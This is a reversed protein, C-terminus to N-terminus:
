PKSRPNLSFVTGCGWTGCTLNGGIGTTGYLSGNTAQILGFPWGGDTDSFSHLRTLIGTTTIKFVTGCGDALGACVRVDGGYLATGYLNNNTGRILWNPFAGDKCDFGPCFNHLANLKGRPSIEFFLGDGYVGGLQTTGYLRGNAAQVLNGPLGGDNATFSYITTLVGKQTMKFVSGYLYLGLATTGYFNGDKAQILGQQPLSGDACEAESCFSHLVTLKGSLTIKFVTGYNQAGGQETTAYLNGDTAQILRAYPFYGDRCKTQKCFRYLTTLRGSPTIRFITGCLASGQTCDGGSSGYTTGYFNGDNALTLGAFPYVGESCTPFEACFTYLVTLKGEPTVRFVVGCGYPNGYGGKFCNLNGGGLTTGYFNGNRGQVLPGNPSSGNTAEFNFISTFTQASAISIAVCVIFIACIARWHTIIPM